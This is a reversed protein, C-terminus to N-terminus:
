EEVARERKGSLKNIWFHWCLGICLMLYGAYVSTLGSDSTVELITYRGAQHDYDQQYFHYGGYHLSHNVQIDKEAVIEGDRIVQLESIYESIVRQYTLLLEDDPHMHGPFREFVYRTTVQGDPSNVQVELAPNSGPGPDDVAIRNEGDIQIKFNKFIRLIKITGYEPNLSYENGIEVPLMWINGQRNQICLYDPKYHEIRFDKLGIYFPLERIQEDESIVRNDSHGEYIQMYGSPIKNSGFVVKLIRILGFPSNDTKLLKQRLEHGGVSSWLAGALVLICGTHILLLAPVRSLRRFLGIGVLLLIIFALWFVASPISNFFAKAKKPGLFAGYVSLFFLLAIFAMAAWMAFRNIRNKLGKDIDLAGYSSDV